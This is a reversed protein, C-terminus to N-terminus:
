IREGEGIEMCSFNDDRRNKKTEPETMTTEAEHRELRLIWHVANAVNVVVFDVAFHRFALLRLRFFDHQRLIQSLRRRHSGWAPELAHDAFQDFPGGM